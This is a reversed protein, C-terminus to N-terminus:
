CDTMPLRQSKVTASSPRQVLNHQVAFIALEVRNAVGLKDFIRTLHHKVTYETVNFTEAIDKNVLGEVVAGVVDLERATLGYPRLGSNGNGSTKVRLLQVVNSMLSRSVWLQGTMVIRICRFLTLSGSERPVIGRAGWLLAQVMDTEDVRDALIVFRLGTEQQYCERLLALAGSDHGLGLLVIDPNLETAREIVHNEPSCQGAVVFGPESELLRRLAERFILQHDVIFIRIVETRVEANTM